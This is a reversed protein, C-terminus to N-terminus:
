PTHLEAVGCGGAGFDVFNEGVYGFVVGSRCGRNTGGDFRGTRAKARERVDTGFRVIGADIHFNDPRESVEDEVADIVLADHDAIHTM